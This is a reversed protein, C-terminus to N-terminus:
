VFPRKVGKEVSWLSKLLLLHVLFVVMMVKQLGTTLDELTRVPFLRILHFGFQLVKKKCYFSMLTKFCKKNFDAEIISNYVSQPYFGKDYKCRTLYNSVGSLTRSHQCYHWIRFIFAFGHAHM